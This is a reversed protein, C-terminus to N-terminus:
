LGGIPPEDIPDFPDIDIPADDPFMAFHDADRTGTEDHLGSFQRTEFDVGPNDELGDALDINAGNEGSLLDQPVLKGETEDFVFEQTRQEDSEQSVDSLNQNTEQIEQPPQSRHRFQGLGSQQPIMQAGGDSKGVPRYTQGGSEGGLEEMLHYAPEDEAIESDCIGCRRTLTDAAAGAIVTAPVLLLIGTAAAGAVGIIAGIVSYAPFSRSSEPQEIGIEEKCNNCIYM